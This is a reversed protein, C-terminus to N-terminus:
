EKKAYKRDIPNRKRNRVAQSNSGPHEGQRSPRDWFSPREYGSLRDMTSLADEFETIAVADLSGRTLRAANVARLVDLRKRLRRQAASKVTPDRLDNRRDDAM